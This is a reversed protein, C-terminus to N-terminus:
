TNGGWNKPFDLNKRSDLLKQDIMKIYPGATDTWNLGFEKGSYGSPMYRLTVTVDDFDVVVLDVCPKIDNPGNYTKNVLFEVSEETSSTLEENYGVLRINERPLVVRLYLSAWSVIENLAGQTIITFEKKTM